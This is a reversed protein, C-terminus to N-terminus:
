LTKALAVRKRQGGSLTNVPQKLHHINLSGLVQKVKADFDWAGLEDMKIIAANIQDTDAAEDASEYQRIAEIVPHDHFFINELITKEEAFVPEQEFLVVDVDKNIWLKGEDPTEEGSLIKLLTSKGTGNRAILAIKDGEEIHFSINSFLPQIGFSKTVEEVSVYHM